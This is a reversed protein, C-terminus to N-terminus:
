PTALGRFRGKVPHAFYCGRPSVRLSNGDLSVVWGGGPAGPATLCGADRGVPIEALVGPVLVVPTAVVPTRAGDASVVETLAVVAKRLSGAPVLQVAQPSPAGGESSFPATEVDFPVEAPPPSAPSKLRDVEARLALVQDQVNSVLLFSMGVLVLVGLVLVVAIARILM